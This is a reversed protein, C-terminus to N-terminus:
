RERLKNLYKEIDLKDFQCGGCTGGCQNYFSCLDVDKLISLLVQKIGADM